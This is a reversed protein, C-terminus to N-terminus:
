PFDKAESFPIGRGSGPVQIRSRRTIPDGPVNWVILAKHLDVRPIEPRRGYRIDFIWEIAQRQNAMLADNIEILWTTFDEPLPGAILNTLTEDQNYINNAQELLLEYRETGKRKGQCVLYKEANAPRSAIPKFLTIKDFCLSAIYLLQATLETVTDFVKMVFNGGERLLKLATLLQVMILRFSLFEQRAFARETEVDFGGDATVLDVGLVQDRRVRNVFNKWEFYLNGTGSEGYYPLFRHNDLQKLNWDPVGPKESKLTIGYGMAEDRRWQIYQTFAGPADALSCFKFNGVTSLHMFAGLYHTLKYVADINALKLGARNMFISRGLHEYPNAENRAAEYQERTFRGINSKRDQLALYEEPATIYIPPLNEIDGINSQHLQATIVPRETPTFSPPALTLIDEPTPRPGFEGHPDEIGPTSQVGNLRILLATPDLSTEM